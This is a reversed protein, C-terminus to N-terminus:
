AALALDREVSWYWLRGTGTPSALWIYLGDLLGEPRAAARWRCFDPRGDDDHLTLPGVLRRLLLRAMRPEQRLEARWTEVRQELAARLRVLDPPTPRPIRLRAEIRAIEAERQKIAPVVTTDSVGAAVLGVLRGVEARLDEQTARLRDGDDGTGDVAGLLENIFRPSLVEGEIVSLMAEDTQEIPLAMTNTCVGPKRRRTACVYVGTHGKWPANRAEFHGHCRPCILMGGSLLYKGHAKEPMPQKARKLSTLYRSRRDQRRADVREAPDPEIIRLEPRQIRIWTDEPRPVQGKERKRKRTGLERGYAKASRGYVFEGRYLPRELVARVTSASWGDIRGQQARPKPVQARNLAKAITRCGEGAAFRAYIVRVVDAEAENIRRETHGKAILVNDYGYIRCGAVLGAEAKRRLADRTHKRVQDRHYQAVLAKMSVTMGGEFSDLDIRQGTSYDWTTVGLDALANLAVMTQHAHRGFRDLDYIVLAHFTGAEANRLMRQFEPRGLFLAGSVGDDRFVHDEDLTWGQRAIFARAGEIQRAVSKAEDAV